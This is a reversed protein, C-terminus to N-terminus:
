EWELMWPNGDADHGTPDIELYARSEQIAREYTLADLRMTNRRGLTDDYELSFTDDEQDLIRASKM